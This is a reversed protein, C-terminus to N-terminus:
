EKKIKGFYKVEEGQNNVGIINYIYTGKALVPNEWPVSHEGYSNPCNNIVDVITGDLGYITISVDRVERPLVYSFDTSETFPNPFNKVKLIWNPGQIPLSMVKYNNSECIENYNDGADVEAFIEVFEADPPISYNMSFEYNGSIELAPVLKKGVLMTDKHNIIAYLGVVM